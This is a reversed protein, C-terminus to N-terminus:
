YLPLVAASRNGQPSPLSLIYLKGLDSSTDRSRYGARFITETIALDRGIINVVDYYLTISSDLPDAEYGPNRKERNWTSAVALARDLDGDAVNQIIFLSSNVLLGSRFLIPDSRSYVIEQADFIIQPPNTLSNVWSEFEQFSQFLKYEPVIVRSRTYYDKPQHVLYTRVYYKMDDMLKESDIIILGSNVITRGSAEEVYALAEEFNGEILDVDISDLLYDADSGGRRLKFLKTFAYLRDLRIREANYYYQRVQDTTSSELSPARTDGLTALQELAYAKYLASLVRLFKLLRESVHKYESFPGGSTVTPVLPNGARRPTNEILRRAYEKLAPTASPEAGPPIGNELPYIIPVFLGEPYQDIAFWIGALQGDVVQVASITNGEFIETVLPLPL